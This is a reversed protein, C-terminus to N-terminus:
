TLTPCTPSEQQTRTSEKSLTAESQSKDEYLKTRRLTPINAPGVELTSRIRQRSFRTHSPFLTGTHSQGLPATSWIFLKSIKIKICSSIRLVLRIWNRLFVLKLYSSFLKRLHSTSWVHEKQLLIVRFRWKTCKVLSIRTNRGNLVIRFTRLSLLSKIPLRKWRRMLWKQIM